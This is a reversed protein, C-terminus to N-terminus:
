CMLVITVKSFAGDLGKNPQADQPGDTMKLIHRVAANITTPAAVPEPTLELSPGFQKDSKILSKLMEGICSQGRNSMITQAIEGQLDGLSQGKWRTINVHDGDGDVQEYFAFEASGNTEVIVMYARRDPLNMEENALKGLIYPSSGYYTHTEPSFSRSPCAGTGPRRIPGPRAHVFTGALMLALVLSAALTAVSTRTMRFLSM